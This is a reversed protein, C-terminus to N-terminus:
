APAKKASAASYRSIGARSASLGSASSIARRRVKAIMEWGSAPLVVSVSFSSSKPPAIASAPVTLARLDARATVASQSSSSFSRPM